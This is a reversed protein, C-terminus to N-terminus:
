TRCARRRPPSTAARTDTPTASLTRTTRRTPPRTPRCPRPRRGGRTAARRQAVRVPRARAAPLHGQGHPLAGLVCLGGAPRRAGAAHRPHDPAGRGDQEHRSAARLAAPGDHVPAAPRHLDAQGPGGRRAARRVARRRARLPARGARPQAHHAPHRRQHARAAGRHPGPDRGRRHRRPRDHARGPHPTAPERGAGHRHRRTAAPRGLARVPVPPADLRSRPDGRPAPERAGERHRGEQGPGRPLPLGGRAPRRDEDGPQAGADPGPVGHGGQRRAM